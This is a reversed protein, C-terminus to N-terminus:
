RGISARKVKQYEQCATIDEHTIRPHNELIDEEKWGQKLLDLIFKVSLRTGKIVPKGGLINKDSHLRDTLPYPIPTGGKNPQVAETAIDLQSVDIEGSILKPLLLDRTQRLTANKLRLTNCINVLPSVKQQFDDLLSETPISVSINLFDDPKVRQHSTSTGLARVSFNETFEPSRFLNYLFMCNVPPRPKLIFFETSTIARHETNLFPFWVRPIRPNLKSLLVTGGTILYKSSRISDGDELTPMHENDFAPISFHAFIEESFKSPTIGNRVLDLMGSFQVIEWGQPIPGLESEVMPVNEHGPFRYHVFWERYLTQAMDELIKIRHTNNEILDDYTSLITAIKRQTPLSRLTIYIDEVSQLAARQRGSAGSMSKVAPDRIIPSLALYLIYTSDSLNPKGRFIFFETSGFCPQDSTNKCQVIKGNELCPTIRAFLIDGSQFRSGGSKYVREKQTFVFSNGPNIDAMEIYPYEKGKELKVQPNVEVFDGFRIMNENQKKQQQSNLNVQFEVEHTEDWHDALSHTDWFEGIEEPTADPPPMPDKIKSEEAM